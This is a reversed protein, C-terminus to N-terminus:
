RHECRHEAVTKGLNVDIGQDGVGVAADGDVAQDNWCISLQAPLTVFESEGGLCGLLGHFHQEFLLAEHWRPDHCRWTGM